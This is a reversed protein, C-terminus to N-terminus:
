FSGGKIAAAETLYPFPVFILIVKTLMAAKFFAERVSIIM